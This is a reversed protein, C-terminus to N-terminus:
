LIIEGALHRRCAWNLAEWGCTTTHHEGTAGLSAEGTTILPSPHHLSKM